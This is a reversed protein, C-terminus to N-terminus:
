RIKTVATTTNVCYQIEGNSDAYRFVAAITSRCFLTTGDSLIAKVPREAEELSFELPEAEMLGQPTTIKM